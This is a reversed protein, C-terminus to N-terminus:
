GYDVDGLRGGPGVRPGDFSAPRGADRDLAAVGRATLLWGIHRGHTSAVWGFDRMQGLVVAVSRVPRGSVQAIQHTWVGGSEESTDDRQMQRLNLALLVARQNDTM